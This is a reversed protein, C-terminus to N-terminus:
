KVWGRKIAEKLAKILNEAHEKSEIYVQKSGDYIAITYSDEDNPVIAHALSVGSSDYRDAFIITSVEQKDPRVDIAVM